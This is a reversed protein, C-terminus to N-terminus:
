RLIALIWDQIPTLLNEQSFGMQGMFWLLRLGTGSGKNGMEGTWVIGRGGPLFFIQSAV